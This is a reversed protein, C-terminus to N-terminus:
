VNMCILIYNFHSPLHFIIENALPKKSAMRSTPPESRPNTLLNHINSNPFSTQHPVTLDPSTRYHPTASSSPSRPFLSRTVVNTPHSLHHQPSRVREVQNSLEGKDCRIMVLYTRHTGKSHEKRSERGTKLEIQVSFFTM